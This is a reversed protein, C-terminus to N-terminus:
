ILIRSIMPANNDQKFIKVINIKEEPVEEFYLELAEKLRKKAEEVTKGQTVVNPVQVSSISYVKSEEEGEPVIIIDLEIKEM